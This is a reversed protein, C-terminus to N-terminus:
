LFIGGSAVAESLNAIRLRALELVSTLVQEVSLGTTDIIIADNAPKLPAVAREMDRKDRALLENLVQEFKIQVGKAKLQQYRRTAREHDNAQLYIKLIADPFVITGMDRGDTVLGPKVCFARQRELLASRVGSFASIQSATTGSEESRITETVDTGELIVRTQGSNSLKFQVDLHAALVELAKENDLAVAHQKAAVALVRYLAGSDLLHWQLIESLRQSVTGKGTGSPGDITIVPVLLNNEKIM